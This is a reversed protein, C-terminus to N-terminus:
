VGAPERRACRRSNLGWLPTDLGGEASTCRSGGSRASSAAVPPTQLTTCLVARLSRWAGESSIAFFNPMVTCLIGNRQYYTVIVSGDVRGLTGGGGGSKSIVLQVTGALSLTPALLLVLAVLTRVFKLIRKM